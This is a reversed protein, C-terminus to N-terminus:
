GGVWIYFTGTKTDGGSAVVIKIREGAVVIPRLVATGGSAYLAAAGSSNLHTAQQPCRTASANVDDEDWVIVGTDPLSVIFDVGDSYNGSGAKAYRIQKIEGYDIVDTYGTGDGSGDTVITVAHRTVHM